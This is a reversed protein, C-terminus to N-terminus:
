VCGRRPVEQRWRARAEGASWAPSDDDPRSYRQRTPLARNWRRLAEAAPGTEPPWGGMVSLLIRTVVVDLVHDEISDDRLVKTLMCRLAPGHDIPEAPAGRASGPRAITPRLPRRANLALNSTVTAM